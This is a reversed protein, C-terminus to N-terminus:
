EKITTKKKQQKEGNVCLNIIVLVFWFESKLLKDNSHMDTIQLEKM